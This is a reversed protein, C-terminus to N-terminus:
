PRSPSNRVHSTIFYGLAVCAMVASIVSNLRISSAIYTSDIRLLELGFRLISYWLIWMFFLKGPAPRKQAYLLLGCFIIANGIAEYLFLPHFFQYLEYLPYRFLPPVFMKWPLTTPYGYAEYNFLNGFRGIIQGIVVSPALWDLLRPLPVERLRCKTYCYLGLLGGFIAGFISLGGRWVALILDPSHFYFSFDSAVHYLRAGIFGSILLVLVVQDIAVPSINYRHARRRALWHATGVALAICLGYYHFTLPGIPLVQPLVLMGSFVPILFAGIIIVGIVFRVAISTFIRLIFNM